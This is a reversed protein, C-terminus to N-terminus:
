KTPLAKAKARLARMARLRPSLSEEWMKAKAKMDEEAVPQIKRLLALYDVHRSEYTAHLDARKARKCILAADKYIRMLWSVKQCQVVTMPQHGFSTKAWTASHAVLWDIEAIAEDFRGAQQFFKALRTSQYLDGHLAKVHHLAAIAGSWDGAAKFATAEKELQACQNLVELPIPGLYTM